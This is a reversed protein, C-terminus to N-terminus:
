MPLHTSADSGTQNDHHHHHHHNCDIQPEQLSHFHPSSWLYTVHTFIQEKLNYTQYSQISAKYNSLTHSNVTITKQGQIIKNQICIFPEHKCEMIYYECLLTSCFNLTWFLFRSNLIWTNKSLKGNNYLVTFHPRKYQLFFIFKLHECFM